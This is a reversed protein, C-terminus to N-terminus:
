TRVPLQLVSCLVQLVGLFVQAVAVARTCIAAAGAQGIQGGKQRRSPRCTREKWTGRTVCKCGCFLCDGFLFLFPFSPGCTPERPLEFPSLVGSCSFIGSRLIGM